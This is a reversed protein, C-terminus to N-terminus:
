AATLPLADGRARLLLVAAVAADLRARALPIAAPPVPALAEVLPHAAQAFGVDAVAAVTAGVGAGAQGVAGPVVPPRAGPLAHARVAATAQDRAVAHTPHAGAVDALACGTRVHHLVLVLGVHVATAAGAAGARGAVTAQDGAVALGAHARAIHTLGCGTGVADLVLVLGIDIAATRRAAGAYGTVTAEEAKEESSDEKQDQREMSVIQEPDDVIQIELEGFMSFINDIEDSSLINPPLVENIEDYTLFGRMKGLSILKQVAKPDRINHM